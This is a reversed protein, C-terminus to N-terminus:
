EGSGSIPADAQLVEVEEEVTEEPVLVHAASEIV